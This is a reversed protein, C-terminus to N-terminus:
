EYRYKCITRFVCYECKIYDPKPDFMKNRIKEAVECIKQEIEVLDKEEVNSEGKIGYDVFYLEIKDPIKGYINKYALSYILMQTDKKVREDANKKSKVESTKYDIIVVKGDIIDIRDWRGNIHIKRENELSIFFNFEEEIFTAVRESKEEEQYFNLLVKKGHEFRQREHEPTLFGEPNWLKTFTNILDEQTFKIGKKRAINYEKITEHIARGYIITHHPLLPIKLIHIYKYQLPCNDYDTIQQNSLKIIKEDPFLIEIEQEQPLSFRSIASIDVGKKVEKRPTEGLSEIIFRSPKKLRKGGYDDASTFYLEEKARTMGVYFLRREEALHVDGSPLIDKVLEDPLSIPEHRFAVPFYDSVLSAMIVVRFELGKAKHVTLVNVVDLEPDIEAVKPEDGAEILVDLYNVFEYVKELAPIQEMYKKILYFFKSINKIKKESSISEEHILRDLYGTDKIFHYLLTGTSVKHSLEIFKTLTIVIKKIQEEGNQSLTIESSYDNIHEFLYWLTFNKRKAFSMCKALDVPDIKCIIESCSLSYLSISDHVNAMFKLFSILFKIEEQAYLGASGSFYWPIGKMNLARLFPDANKNARVLIAFDKYKYEGTKVKDYILQAVAEAESDINDYHLHKIIGHEGTQSILRKDINKRIELREPNNHQILRYAVDLINQKSRYNKTLAIVKADPFYELFKIVNSLAAGRWKFISQDDDAVVYLNRHKKALLLLLQFQSYNTDQFEDVLIYKFRNQYENLVLPHERFLKLPLTILDGFDVKKHEFLLQQYKQYVCALEKQKRIKELVSEDNSNKNENEFKKAYEIYEEPTVDEDKARSIMNLIAQIHKTPNSLPRYESLPFEFLHEQFFMVQEAESLIQFDTSFGLTLANERLIREGFSHYTLIWFDTYAYPILEDVRLEMEYAAKEAFTLALIEEPKAKKTLILYAIRTTLTKTKGTGAGAIIIAPGDPLLVAEKQEENLEKILDEIAM